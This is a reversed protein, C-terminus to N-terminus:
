LYLDIFKLYLYVEYIHENYLKFNIYALKDLYDFDIEYIKYSM